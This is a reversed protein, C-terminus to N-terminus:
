KIMRITIPYEYLEGRSAAQGALLSYVISLAWPVVLLAFLVAGLGCTVIAVVVFLLSLGASYILVSLHFNIAELLSLRVWRSMRGSNALFIILPGLVGLAGLYNGLAADSREAPSPLPPGQVPYGYGPAPRPPPVRGPMPGPRSPPMPPPGSVPPAGFRGTTEEIQYPAGSTPEDVPRGYTAGYTEAWVPGGGEDPRPDTPSTMGDRYPRGAV